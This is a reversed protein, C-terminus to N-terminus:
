HLPREGEFAGGSQHQGLKKDYAECGFHDKASIVTKTVRLKGLIPFGDKRKRAPTNIASFPTELSAIIPYHSLKSFAAGPLGSGRPVRLRVFSFWCFLPRRTVEQGEHKLTKQKKIKL